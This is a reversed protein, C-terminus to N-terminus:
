DYTKACKIHADLAWRGPIIATNYENNNMQSNDHGHVNLDHETINLNPKSIIFCMVQHVKALKEFPNYEM